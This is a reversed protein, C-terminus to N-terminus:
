AAVSLCQFDDCLAADPSGVLRRMSEFLLSSLREAAEASNATDHQQRM